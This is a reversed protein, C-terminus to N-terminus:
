VLQLVDCKLKTTHKPASLNGRSGPSCADHKASPLSLSDDTTIEEKTSAPQQKQSVNGCIDEEDCGGCQDSVASQQSPIEGKRERECVCM